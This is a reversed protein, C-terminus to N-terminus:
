CRTKRPLHPPGAPWPPWEGLLYIAQRVALADGPFHRGDDASNRHPGPLRGGGGGAATSQALNSLVPSQAPAQYFRNDASNAAREASSEARYDRFVEAVDFMSAIPTMGGIAEKLVPWTKRSLAGGAQRQLVGSQREHRVRRRRSGSSRGCSLQVLVVDQKPGLANELTGIVVLDIKEVKDGAIITYAVGKMGPKIDSLPFIDPNGDAFIPLAVLLILALIGLFALPFRKISQFQMIPWQVGTSDSSALQRCRAAQGARSSM